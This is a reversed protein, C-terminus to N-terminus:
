RSRRRRPPRPRTPDTGQRAIGLRRNYQDESLGLHKAKERNSEFESSDAVSLILRREFEQVVEDLNYGGNTAQSQGRGRTLEQVLRALMDPEPGTFAPGPAPSPLGHLRVHDPLHHPEIIGGDALADAREIANLLERVNGRQWDYRRLAAEAEESLRVSGPGRPSGFQRALPIVDELRERLPPLRVDFTELRQLLDLRFKGDRVDAELDRNTAAVIRGEFHLSDSSLGGLRNFTRIEKDLVRVLKGQAELPLDGLEDLFLTGEGVTEFVGRHETKADTFAGAVHGFLESLVTNEPLGACNVVMFPREVRPSLYHIVAAFIEKGTGSEGRLLVPGDMPAFKRIKDIVTTLKGSDNILQLEGREDVVRKLARIKLRTIERRLRGLDEVQQIMRRAVGVRAPLEDKLHEKAVFEDAGGELVKKLDQPHVTILIVYCFRRAKSAEERIKRALQLGDDGRRLSWDTVVLPHRHQEYLGLALSASPALDAQWGLSQIQRFVLEGDLEDDDVVLARM